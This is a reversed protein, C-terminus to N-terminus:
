SSTPNNCRVGDLTVNRSVTPHRHDMEPITFRLLSCQKFIIVCYSLSCGFGELCLSANIFYKKHQSIIERRLINFNANTHKFSTNPSADRVLKLLVSQLTGAIFHCQNISECALESSAIPASPPFM